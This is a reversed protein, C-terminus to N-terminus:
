LIEGKDACVTMAHDMDARGPHCRYLKSCGESMLMLRRLTMTFKRTRLSTRRSRGTSTLGPQQRPLRYRSEPFGRPSAAIHGTTHRSAQPTPMVMPSSMAYTIKAMGLWTQISYRGMVCAAPQQWPRPLLAAARWRRDRGSTIRAKNGDLCTNLAEFDSPSPTAASATARTCGPPQLTRGAAEDATLPGGSRRWGAM